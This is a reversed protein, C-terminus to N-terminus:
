FRISIMTRGNLLADSGSIGVPRVASLPTYFVEGSVFIRDTLGVLLGATGHVTFGASRFSTDDRTGNTLAGVQFEGSMRNFGVSVYPEVGGFLAAAGLDFGIFRQKVEDESAEDCGFPNLDLDDGAAATAASCTFDGKVSGVHGYVRTGVRYSEGQMLPVGISASVLNPTAGNRSVPPVYAVTFETGATLGFTVRVRGFASTKNLDELKTGNFGVRRQDDSLQPVFAGEFSLAWNGEGIAGPVGLGTLLSVSTFYNMAWIEPRDFDLKEAESGGGYQAVLPVSVGMLGVFVVLVFLTKIQSM